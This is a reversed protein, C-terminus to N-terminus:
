TRNNPLIPIYPGGCFQLCSGLIVNPRPRKQQEARLVQRPAAINTEAAGGQGEARRDGHAGTDYEAERRDKVQEAAVEVLNEAAVFPASSALAAGHPRSAGQNHALNRKREHQQDPGSQERQTERAKQLDIWAELRLM